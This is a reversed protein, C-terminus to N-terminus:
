ILRDMTTVLKDKALDGAAMGLGLGGIYGAIQLVPNAGRVSAICYAAVVSSAGFYGVYGVIFKAVYKTDKTDKM